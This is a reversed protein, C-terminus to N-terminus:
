AWDEQYQTDEASSRISTAAGEDSDEVLVAKATEKTEEAVQLFRVTAGPDGQFGHNWGWCRTAFWQKSDKAADELFHGDCKAKDEYRPFCHREKTKKEKLLYVWGFRGCNNWGPQVTGTESSKEILGYLYKCFKLYQGKGKMQDKDTLSADLLAEVM